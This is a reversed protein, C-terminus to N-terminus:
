WNSTVTRRDCQPIASFAFATILPNGEADKPNGVAARLRKVIADSSPLEAVLVTGERPANPTMQSLSLARRMLLAVGRAHYARIVGAGTLGSAKLIGITLRHNALRDRGEESLDARWEEPARFVENGSYTPLSAGPDDKLYFWLSHWGKNSSV